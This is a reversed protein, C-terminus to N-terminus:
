SRSGTVPEILLCDCEYSHCFGDEVPSFAGGGRAPGERQASAAACNRRHRRGNSLMTCNGSYQFGRRARAAPRRSTGAGAAARRRRGRRRKYRGRGRSGRGLRTGPVTCGGPPTILWRWSMRRDIASRGRWPPTPVASAQDHRRAPYASPRALAAATRTRPRTGRPSAHNPACRRSGALGTAGLPCDRQGSPFM